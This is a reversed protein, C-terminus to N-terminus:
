ADRRGSMVDFFRLEALVGNRRNGFAVVGV